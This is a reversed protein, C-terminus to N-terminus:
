FPIKVNVMARNSVVGNPLAFPAATMSGRVKGIIGTEAVLPTDYSTQPLPQLRNRDVPERRGCVVIEDGTGRCGTAPKLKRLDFDALADIGPTALQLMLLM